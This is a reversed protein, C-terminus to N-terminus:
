QELRNFSEREEVEGEGKRRTDPCDGGGGWKGFRNWRASILAVVRCSYFHGWDSEASPTWGSGSGGGWAGKRVVRRCSSVTPGASLRAPLASSPLCVYLCVSVPPTRLLCILLRFPTPPDVAVKSALSNLSHPDSPKPQRWLTSTTSAALRKGIYIRFASISCWSFRDWCMCSSKKPGETVM